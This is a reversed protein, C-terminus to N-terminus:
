LIIIIYVQLLDLKNKNKKYINNIDVSVLSSSQTSMPRSYYSDLNNNSNKRFSNNHNIEYDLSDEFRDDDNEDGNIPTPPTQPTTINNNDIRNLISPTSLHSQRPSTHSSLQQQPITPPYRPTYKQNTTNVYDTRPTQRNSSSNSRASLLNTSSTSRGSLPISSSTTPPQPPPPTFPTITHLSKVSYSTFSSQPSTIEPRNKIFLLLYYYYIYMTYIDPKSSRKNRNNNPPSLNNLIQSAATSLRM